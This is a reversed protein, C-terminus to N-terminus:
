MELLTRCRERCEHHDVPKVLFDTAGGGLAVERMGPDNNASVMIVPIQAGAPHSRLLRIFETGNMVPMKYDTLVLDVSNKTVWDFAEQPCAFARIEHRNDISGVLASLIQRSVAEDDIILITAM